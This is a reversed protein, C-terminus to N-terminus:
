ETVARANYDLVAAFIRLCATEFIPSSPEAAHPGLLDLAGIADAGADNFLPWDSDVSFLM